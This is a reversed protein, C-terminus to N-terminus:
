NTRRYVGREDATFIRVKGFEGDYGADIRLEGSRVRRVGEAILANSAAAIDPLPSELLIFLENGIMSLLSQYQTAAKKSGAGIDLAEAIVEILPVLRTFPKGRPAVAGDPRDALEEVRSMVGVTLPTHCVPCIGAHDLTEQPTFHISCKRHGDIHYKGEEPFFEVTGLLNADSTGALADCIGTFSCDTDFVTCERGIKSPSHADSSSILAFRDLSSVRWNMAPDSSLGTELACIHKTLDGYCEEISDFGSKSGLVSFWPTWIHAPILLTRRDAELAIELLDRSDLGLIPRGDSRLNGIQELRKRLKGASDFSPLCLVQHVKRVRNNKKYITSIEVTPMFRVTGFCPAPVQKSVTHAVAPNLSYLGNGEDFLKKSCQDFWAPHLCDGTGIVTIGKLQGWVYLQELTLEKSTARSYSSHLHLDAYFKM